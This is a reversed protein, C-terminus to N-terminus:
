KAYINDTNKSYIRVNSLENNKSEGNKQNRSIIEEAEQFLNKEIRSFNEFIKIRKV